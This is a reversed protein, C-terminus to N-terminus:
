HRFGLSTAPRHVLPVPDLTEDLTSTGAAGTGRQRADLYGMASAARGDGSRSMSDEEDDPQVTVPDSLLLPCTWSLDAFTSAVRSEPPSFDYYITVEEEQEGEQGPGAPLFGKVGVQELTQYMDELLNTPKNLYLSVNDRHMSGGHREVVSDRLRYIRTGVPAAESFDLFHWPASGPFMTYHVHIRRVPKPKLLDAYPNVVEPKPEKKKGGKKGKGKGKKGKKAMGSPEVDRPRNALGRARSGALGRARSGALGGSALARAPAV